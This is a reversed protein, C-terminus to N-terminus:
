WPFKSMKWTKSSLQFLWSAVGGGFFLMSNLFIVVDLIIHGKMEPHYLLTGAM